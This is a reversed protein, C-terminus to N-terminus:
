DYLFNADVMFLSGRFGQITQELRDADFVGLAPAAGLGAGQELALNGDAAFVPIDRLGTEDLGVGDRM